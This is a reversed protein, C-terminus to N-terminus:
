PIQLLDDADGAVGTLLLLLATFGLWFATLRQARLVAGATGLWRNSFLTVIALLITGASLDGVSVTHPAFNGLALEAVANAGRLIDATLVLVTPPPIIEGLTGAACIAGCALRPDYGARMMAPLSLLRMTVVTAGVIGTSAALLVGVIVVSIGLGGRLSGFVQGIATLLAEAIKSRELAVGMFVFLPAAVLVPNTIVGFFGTSLGALLRLDFAGYWAGIMASAVVLGGLTWAVM